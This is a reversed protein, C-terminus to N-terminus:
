KAFTGFPNAEPHKYNVIELRKRMVEIDKGEPYTEIYLKSANRASDWDGNYQSSDELMPLAKVAYYGTAGYDNILTSFTSQAKPYEARQYYAVGIYYEAAPAWSAQPNKRVYVLTDDFDYTKSVWTCAGYICLIIVVIKTM